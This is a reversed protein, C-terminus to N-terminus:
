LNYDSMAHRRAMSKEKYNADAAIDNNIINEHSFNEVASKCWYFGLWPYIKYYGKLLNM